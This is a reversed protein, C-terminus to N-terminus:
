KNMEAIAQRLRTISDRLEAHGEWYAIKAEHMEGPDSFNAQIAQIADGLEKERQHLERHEDSPFDNPGYEEVPAEAVGQGAADADSEAIAQRLRTISDRLEAHGEWYAIKAEHMKGPDSFNAHIAHIADGLEKERQHLEWHEDSPFDSRGKEIPSVPAIPDEGEVIAAAFVGGAICIAWFVHKSEKM